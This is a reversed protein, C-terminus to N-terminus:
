IHIHHEKLKRKGAVNFFTALDAERHEISASREPELYPILNERFFQLAIKHVTKSLLNRRNKSNGNTLLCILASTIKLGLM